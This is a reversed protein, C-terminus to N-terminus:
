RCDWYREPFTKNEITFRKRHLEEKVQNFETVNKPRKMIPFIQFSHMSSKSESKVKLVLTPYILSEIIKLNFLSNNSKIKWTSSLVYKERSLNFAIFASRTYWCVSYGNPLLSNDHIVSKSINNSRFVLWDSNFEMDFDGGYTEFAFM